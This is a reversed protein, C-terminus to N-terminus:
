GRRAYCGFVLNGAGDVRAKFVYDGPSSSLGVAKLADASVRKATWAGERHESWALKIEFFTSPKPGAKNAEPVPVDPLKETFVPWFLYLRRNFVVPVLHDSEIDVDVKEWPTWYASDVRKRYYYLSPAGYTRAIVHLVDVDDDAAEGQQHYMGCVQLRAVGDLKELYHLLASEASENTVENQQLENELEKFFPSKDDRLEPRIWNEPYLFVKRNAEWVRYNRMWARWRRADEAGFSVEPELNLLGRQVFLQASSIALKVRSTLQCSSMEVDVLLHSYLGNADEWAQGKEADPRAVLYSVLAARQRERLVDRLPRAKALWQAEDYKARVAARVDEAQARDPPSGAWAFLRPVPVGLRRSLAVCGRLRLLEVENVFDAAGLGFREVLEDVEAEDWGTAAVLLAELDAVPRGASAAAFLDFLDADGRPLSDRLEFLDRLREWQGFLAPVFGEADVPLANLDLGAFDDAHAVLHALERSTIKFTGALLAAKRLRTFSRLVPTLSPLGGDTVGNDLLALYDRIAPSEPDTQARLVSSLLLGALASDMGLAGSLTQKILGERQIAEPAIRALGDQLDKLLLIVDDVLPADPDAATDHLYLYRLRAFSFPSRKVGRVRAALEATAAPSSFPDVGTLVVMASLDDPSIGLAAALAERDPQAATWLELVRDVPQRLDATLQQIRSLGLLLDDDLESAGLASLARDLERVDWGLKRWLRVFRYIRDLTAATPAPAVFLKTTDCTGADEPRAPAIQYSGEGLEQRVFGTALVEELQEFALASRRLLVAVNGFDADGLSGAGWDAAVEAEDTDATTIALREAGTLGLREAAVDVESPDSQFTTMLTERRLGLLEFYGRVEEWWLDFPLDWPYTARALLDYAGLNIHEPFALLEATTRTTQRARAPPSTAPAVEAELLENVLDVYPLVTNTNPCSLEIERIDPRRAFLVDAPTKGSADPPHSRLMNLIDVLYAAPSYVSACHECECFSLAQSGFLEAWDPLTAAQAALGLEAHVLAARADAGDQAPLAPVAAVQTSHLAAGFKAYLAVATAASRRAKQYVRAARIPGGLSAAYRATFDQMPVRSIARASDLGDGLLTRMGSYDGALLYTRQMRNLAAVATEPDSLGELAGPNEAVYADVRTTRIDFQPNNEFFLGLDDAGAEGSEATRSAVFQTPFAAEVTATIASAYNAAKEEDSEGPTIEPFGIPPTEGGDGQILGLWDGEDLAALDSLEGLPLMAARAGRAAPKVRALSGDAIAGQLHQVLPVHNHTLFGLRLTTQLTDVDGGLEPHERLSAWLESVPGEVNAYLEFFTQQKEPTTLAAALVDRVPTAGPAPPTQLAREVKLQELRALIDELSARLGPPIVNDKLASELAKRFATQDHELLEGLETPLKQRFLGYLAAAPLQADAALAAARLHDLREREVGTENELFTIDQFEADERLGAPTLSGLIPTIEALLLEYESPGLYRGGGVLLDVTEVPRANFLIGSNVLEVNSADFARVLLDASRKEARSFQDASYEIEYSGETDTVAEGLPEETRLDRDAARVTVGALLSGDAARVQGSVVFEAPVDATIVVEVGEETRKWQVDKREVAIPTTGRFLKFYFGRYIKKPKDDGPPAGGGGGAAPQQFDSKKLDIRFAGTADTLAVGGAIPREKHWTEVRVGAAPRGTRRNIVRGTVRVPKDAQENTQLEM